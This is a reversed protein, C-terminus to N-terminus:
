CTVAIACSSLTRAAQHQRSVGGAQRTSRPFLQACISQVGGVRRMDCRRLGVIELYRSRRNSPPCSSKSSHRRVEVVSYMPLRDNKVVSSCIQSTRAHRTNLLRLTHVTGLGQGSFDHSLTLRRQASLPLHLLNVAPLLLSHSSSQSRGRCSGDLRVHSPHRTFRDQLPRGWKPQQCAGCAVRVCVGLWWWWRCGAVGHCFVVVIVAEAVWRSLLDEGLNAVDLADDHAQVLM